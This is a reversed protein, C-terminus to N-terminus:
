RDETAGPGCSPHGFIISSELRRNQELWARAPGQPVQFEQLTQQLIELRRHFHARAIPHPAHAEPLARGTYVVPGGLHAAALEFEKAKIRARDAGAFFFGIMSDTFVREMFRDIILTLMVEGGLQDYLSAETMAAM